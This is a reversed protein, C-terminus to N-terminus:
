HIDQLQPRPRDFAKLNDVEGVLWVLDNAELVTTPDPNLMRRGEREIGVVLGQADERLKSDRINKGVAPHDVPLFLAKLSFNDLLDVPEAPEEDKEVMKSFQDIQEDTGLVILKDLPLIREEGRPAIITRAGRYIAVINVGFKQRLQNQTLTKGLLPSNASAEIEVFHSDWPALEEYKRQRGDEKRINGVLRQEFWQYLRGLYRYAFAFLALFVVALVGFVVWHRFYAITLILVEAITLFWLLTIAFTSFMRAQRTAVRSSFLMGWLFPSSTIIAILWAATLGSWKEEFLTTIPALLLKNVLTFIIAVILGNVLLRVTTKRFLSQQKSQSLTRFVWSSYSALFDKVRESLLGDIKQALYGSLRISYPTTFTTIGSVAVIIAYLSPSTVNLTLGLGIIIFSFEGVQSMSFGLRLSTNFSQGTLIAGTATILLKGLTVLLTIALVASWHEWLVNPDLMMGVSIFFVAAFMDKIPTIIHDIRQVLRTESLISGMIFAGLATSYHFYDAVWVLLLCLGISVVTLTEQTAYGTIRRMLTPILFYGIIFWAGVVVILQLASWTIELSFISDTKVVTSLFVLLLIALLDEVVFVGFVLEAFRKKMLGLDSMAKIIITTSSIAVAAGLFLSDYFTWGMLRGGGFGLACVALVEFLGTLGASFGVRALKQFSFHLGLSFMLFIVGLDSLIKINPLDIILSHSLTYPGIIIGAVLYGLVLPQRIKQFLLTTIGAVGLMVALDRILPALDHMTKEQFDALGRMAPSFLM